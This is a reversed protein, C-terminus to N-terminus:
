SFRSSIKHLIDLIESYRFKNFQDSEEKLINQEIYVIMNEIFTKEDKLHEAITKGNYTESTRYRSDLFYCLNYLSSPIGDLSKIIDGFTILNLFTTYEYIEYNKYAVDWKGTMIFPLAEMFKQKSTEIKNSKINQTISIYLNSKIDIFDEDNENIYALGTGNFKIQHPDLWKKDNSYQEIKHKIEAITINDCLGKKIFFILLSSVHLVVGISSYEAQRFKSIVDNLNEYFEKKELKRYSWLNEWSSNEKENFLSYSSIIKNVNESTPYNGVIIERWFDHGFIISYYLRSNDEKLHQMIMNIDNYKRYDLSLYYFNEIIMKYFKDNKLFVSDILNIFDILEDTTRNLNRYNANGKKNFIDKILDLKEYDLSLAKSNKNYFDSWFDKDNNKIVFSKGIVKEKFKNYLENQIEDENAVVLVKLKQNECLSNIFGLIESLDIITRELDDFIFIVNDFKEKNFFNLKDISISVSGDNKGDGNLDINVGFKIASTILGGLFKTTKHSLIPHFEQFIADNVESINKLGFLSIYIFKYRHEIKKNEIYNNIFHTKGSGWKGSILIAFETDKKDLYLDLYKKIHSNM